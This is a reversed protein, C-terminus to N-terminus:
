KKEAKATDADAILKKRIFFCAGIAGVAPIQHVLFEMMHGSPIMAAITLNLLWWALWYGIFGLIAWKFPPEGKEKATFYFWLFVAVGALRALLLMTEGKNKNYFQDTKGVIGNSNFWVSYPLVIIM